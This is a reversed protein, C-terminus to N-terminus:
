RGVKEVADAFRFAQQPVPRTWAPTMLARQTDDVTAFFTVRERNHLRLASLLRRAEDHAQVKDEFQAVQATITDDGVPMTLLVLWDQSAASHLQVVSVIQELQPM